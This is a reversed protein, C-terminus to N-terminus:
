ITRFYGKQRTNWINHWTFKMSQREIEKYIREYFNIKKREYYSLENEDYVFFIFLHYLGEIIYDLISALVGVFLITITILNNIITM